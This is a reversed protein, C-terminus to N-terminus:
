SSPGSGAGEALMAAMGRLLMDLGGAFEQDVGIHRARQATASLHPFRDPPLESIAVTGAASLSGLHEQQIAGIVYGLLGRLAIVQQGGQFGAESLIGLVVESWRLVAPSRHRHTLTLPVIEPHAGVCDRLRGVMTEVRQRWPVESGPPATDVAGLVLEVVLQELQDRDDVYRYLAMTSMGLEKAVARMSLGSLGERDIVALAATALQAQTLSRPRPM